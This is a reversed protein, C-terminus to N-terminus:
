QRILSSSRRSVYRLLPGRKQSNARLARILAFPATVCSVFLSLREPKVDEVEYGLALMNDRALTQIWWTEEPRLRMRWRGVSTTFIGPSSQEFSSNHSEVQILEDTYDIELFDCLRRVERDPSRVLDEYRVLTVRDSKNQNIHKLLLNSSSRWLLSTIVPHYLAKIRESETSRRWYNKYSSLFDRPDRVCAVVKAEPFLDLIAQLYYLHKPTDDCIRMKGQSKALMQTFARYLGAYGGGAIDTRDILTEKQIVADVLDQTDPFNFRGFITMLRDAARSLEVESELGGLADKRTWIDEFYHTEGPSFVDPHRGLIKATLTTGSRAPGVIFIPPPFEDLDHVIM